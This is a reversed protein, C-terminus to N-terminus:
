LRNAQEEADGPPPLPVRTEKGGLTPLHDTPMEWDAYPYPFSNPYTLHMMWVYWGAYAWDAGHGAAAIEPFRRIFAKALDIPRAHAMDTWDFYNREQGSTYHAAFDWESMRAGNSRLTNARPTVSCRWYMGSPAMGPAIRLRQHGLIHLEQVM